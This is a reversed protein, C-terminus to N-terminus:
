FSILEKLRVDDAFDFEFTKKFIWFKTITFEGQVHFPIEKDNLFADLGPKVINGLQTFSTAVQIPLTFDSKKKMRVKDDIGAQGVIKDGITISLNMKKLTAGVVNPNHLKLDVNIKPETQADEIKFNEYGNYRLPQLSTCSSFIILLLLINLLIYKKHIM